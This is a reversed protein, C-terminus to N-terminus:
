NLIRQFREKGKGNFFQDGFWHGLLKENKDFIFAEKESVVLTINVVEGNKDYAIARYPYNGDYDNIEFKALRGAPNYYYKKNIDDEYEVCYLVMNNFVYFPNINRKPETKIIYNKNKINKRNEKVYKDKLYNKFMEKPISRALDRFAEIRATDETYEVKGQLDKASVFNFSLFLAILLIRFM